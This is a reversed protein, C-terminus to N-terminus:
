RGNHLLCAILSLAFVIWFIKKLNLKWLWKQIKGLTLRRATSHKISCYGTVSNGKLLFTYMFFRVCRTPRPRPIM